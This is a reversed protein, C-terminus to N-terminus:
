SIIYKFYLGLLVFCVDYNPPPEEKYKDRYDDMIWRELGKVTNSDVGGLSDYYEIQRDRFNAVACTQLSGKVQVAVILSVLTYISYV